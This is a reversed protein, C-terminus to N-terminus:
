SSSPTAVTTHMVTGAASVGSPRRDTQEPYGAMSTPMWTYRGAERQGQVIRAAPGGQKMVCMLRRPSPWSRRGAGDSSVPSGVQDTGM